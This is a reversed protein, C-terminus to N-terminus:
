IQKILEDLNIAGYPLDAVSYDGRSILNEEPYTLEESLKEGPRLGVFKIKARTHNDKAISKALDTIKIPKGMNWVYLQRNNGNSAELLLDVADQMSLFYREMDPHTIELTEGNAIKKEFTEVVSGRSRLVNGFRVIIYDCGSDQALCMQECIRKTKGMVSSPNVAKDTSLFIFKRVGFEHSLEIMNKTGYINNEIAEEKQLEMIPVHKYAACHFIINPLRTGIIRAMTEKNTIDGVLCHAGRMLGSIYFIGTEDQDILTLEKPKMQYLRMALASGISGAAGTVLIRSNM